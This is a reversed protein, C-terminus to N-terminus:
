SVPVINDKNITMIFKLVQKTEDESIMCQHYGKETKILIVASKAKIKEIEEMEIYKITKL